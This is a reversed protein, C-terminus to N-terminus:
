GCGYNRIRLGCDAIALYITEIEQLQRRPDYKQRVFDRGRVGCAQRWPENSLARILASALLRPNAAPVLLGTEDPLVNEAVGGVRTAVVPRAAAMAEPITLGLAEEVASSVCVDLAHM